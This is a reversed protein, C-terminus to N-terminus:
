VVKNVSVDSRAGGARDIRDLANRATQDGSNAQRELAQYDQDNAALSGTRAKAVLQDVTQAM